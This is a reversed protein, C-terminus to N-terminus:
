IDQRLLKPKVVLLYDIFHTAEFGLLGKPGKQGYTVARKYRFWVRNSPWNWDHWREATEWLCVRCRLCERSLDVTSLWTVFPTNHNLRHNWSSLNTSCHYVCPWHSDVTVSLLALCFVIGVELWLCPICLLITRNWFNVLFKNRVKCPCLTCRWCRCSDLNRM